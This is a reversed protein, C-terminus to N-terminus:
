DLPCVRIIHGDPDSVLFTLGFVEKKPEQTIHIDTDHRWKQYLKDVDNDSHLMIGIESFRPMDKDPKTGRSWLSFFAEGGASFAVYHESTFVPKSDLLKEYFHTSQLIDSVYILQLNAKPSQIM